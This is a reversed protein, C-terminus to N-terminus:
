RSASCCRSFGCRSRLRAPVENSVNVVERDHVAFLPYVSPSPARSPASHPPLQMATLSRPAPTPPGTNAPQVRRAIHPEAEHRSTPRSAGPGAQGRRATIPRCGGTIALAELLPRPCVLTVALVESLARWAGPRPPLAEPVSWAAGLPSAVGEPLARIAVSHARWAKPFPESRLLARDRPSRSPSPDCRARDRPRRSANPRCGPRPPLGELLPGFAIANRRSAKQFPGPPLRAPGPPRGSPALRCGCQDPLGEPLPWAAVANTRWRNPFPRPAWQMRRRVSRSPSPLGGRQFVFAERLVRFLVANFNSLKSFPAPSWRTPGRARRSATPLCGLQTAPGEPLSGLSCVHVCGSASGPATVGRRRDRTSPPPAPAM